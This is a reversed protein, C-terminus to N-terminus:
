AYVRPDLGNFLRLGTQLPQPKKMELGGLFLWTVFLHYLHSM